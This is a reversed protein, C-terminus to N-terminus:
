GAAVLANADADSPLAKWAAITSDIDTKQDASLTAGIGSALPEAATDGNQAALAYWYYAKGADQISGSVAETSPHYLAGLNYMSDVLGRNAAQEFWTIAEPTNEPGGDGRATMVGLRHMALVNGGNASRQFWTRAQGLDTDVGQGTKYLEGLQLQAPPHGLLAAERLKGIAIDSEAATQAAGLGTMADRYLTNPDIAPASPVELVPGEQAASTTTAAPQTPAEVNTARGATNDGRPAFILDKIMFFLLGVALLIGVGLGLTVPRASATKRLTELAARDGNLDTDNTEADADDKATEVSPTEDEDDKKKSGIFPLKATLGSLVGGIGGATEEKEDDDDSAKESETPKEAENGSLAKKAAARKAPDVFTDTEGAQEALRKKRARAALIAKQKPTLKRRKPRSAADAERAEADERAKRRVAKMYDQSADPKADDSVPQALPDAEAATVDEQQSENADAIDDIGALLEDLDSEHLSSPTEAIPPDAKDTKTPKDTGDFAGQIESLLAAGENDVAQPEDDDLEFSFGDDSDDTPAEELTADIDDAFAFFDDDGEENENGDAKGAIDNAEINEAADQEDDAEEPEGLLMDLDDDSDDESLADEALVEEGPDVSAGPEDDLAPLGLAASESIDQDAIEETASTDISASTFDSSTLADDGSADSDEVTDQDLTELRTIMQEFSSQLHDVRDVIDRTQDTVVAAIDERNPGDFQGGSFQERLDALTEATKQVGEASRREAAEIQKALKGIVGELARIQDGGRKIEDGLVRLRNDTNAVFAPDASATGDGTKSIQSITRETRSLRTQLGDVADKLHGLGSADVNGGEEIRGALRQLQAETSDLRDLTTKQSNNFQVAVQAVAKELAKLADVRERDGGSGGTRELRQVREVVDGLTRTTETATENATTSTDAVRKNLHEIATVIDRLQLGEVNGDSSEPDGATYIMQNLWEGVTMGERKAAEKATERADREIGKVSWPANSKM